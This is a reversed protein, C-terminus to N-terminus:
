RQVALESVQVLPIATIKKDLPYQTEDPYVIWLHELSLDAIAIHMSRKGGPAAACKFIGGPMSAAIMGASPATAVM